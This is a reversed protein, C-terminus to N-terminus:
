ESLYIAVAVNAALMFEEVLSHAENRESPVVATLLGERYILEPELLDFDLSGQRLRKRKLIRALHRMLFLDAHLHQYRNQEGPDGQFIKYVSTYTMRETTQIVSPHFDSQLITGKEDIEMVASVTLRPVQPRLSCLDNSLKEPLMPLTLDPFYVSTGRLYAERDLASGPRVYHSVDAIHVGLLYHGNSLKRISLADDFDQAKEGDITVTTWNRYDVRGIFDESLPEAPLTTAEALTEPSFKEFLNHQNIVVKLDVGPEDQYGLIKRVELSSRDIEVIQGPKPRQRNKLKVLFPEEHLTDMPLVFPQYNIELYLGFISTRGRKLIRTVRGEAKGKQGEEKVIVEVLDGTLAGATQGPPIFIDEAGDEATEPTVFAFGRKNLSITGRIVKSRPLPMVLDGKLKLLGQKELYRVLGKLKRKEGKNLKLIRGLRELSIPKRNKELFEIIEKEM